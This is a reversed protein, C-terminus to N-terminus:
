VSVKERPKREILLAAMVALGILMLVIAALRWMQLADSCAGAYDTLGLSGSLTNAFDRAAADNSGNFASGCSVPGKSVPIFGLVLGAVALAGGLAGIRKRLSSDMGELTVGSRAM